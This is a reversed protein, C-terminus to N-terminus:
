VKRKQLPKNPNRDYDQCKNAGKAVFHCPAHGTTSLTRLHRVKGNANTKLQQEVTQHKCCMRAHTLKDKYHATCSRCSEFFVSNPDQVPKPMPPVRKKLYDLVNDVIVM